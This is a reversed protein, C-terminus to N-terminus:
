MSLGMQIGEEVENFVSSWILRRSYGCGGLVILIVFLVDFFLLM